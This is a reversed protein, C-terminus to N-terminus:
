VGRTMIFYVGMDQSFLPDMFKKYFTKTYWPCYGPLANPKGDIFVTPRGNHRKVTVDPLKQAEANNFGVTVLIVLYPLIKRQLVSRMKEGKM